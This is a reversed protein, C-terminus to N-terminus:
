PGCDPVLARLCGILQQATGELDTHHRGVLPWRRVIDHHLHDRIVPQGGPVEVRHEGPLRESDDLPFRGVVRGVLVHYYRVFVRAWLCTWQLFNKKEALKGSRIQDRPKLLLPKPTYIKRAVSCVKVHCPNASCGWQENLFVVQPRGGARTHGLLQM